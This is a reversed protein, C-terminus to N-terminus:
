GPPWRRVRCASRAACGRRELLTRAHRAHDSQRGLGRFDYGSPDQAGAMLFLEIISASCDWGTITEHAKMMALIEAHDRVPFPRTQEYAILHQNKCFWRANSVLNARQAATLNSM